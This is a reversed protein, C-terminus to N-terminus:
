PVCAVTLNTPFLGAPPIRRVRVRRDTVFGGDILLTDLADTTMWRMPRGVAAAAANAVRALRQTAPNVFALYLVGGPRLVRHFESLAQPQDPYWHFSETCCLADFRDADFPLRQADAEVWTVDGSRARAKALMGPSMDVGLVEAGPYEEALRAALIGTGCGVDLVRDPPPRRALESVVADHVPVYTLAQPARADYIRSWMDFFRRLGHDPRPGCPDTM